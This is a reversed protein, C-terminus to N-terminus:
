WQKLSAAGRPMCPGIVSGRGCTCISRPSTATSCCPMAGARCSAYSSLQRWTATSTPTPRGPQDPALPVGAHGRQCLCPEALLLLVRGLGPGEPALSTQHVVSARCRVHQLSGAAHNQEGASLLSQLEESEGRSLPGQCKWFPHVDSKVSARCAAYHV